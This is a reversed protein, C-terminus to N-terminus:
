VRGKLPARRVEGAVSHHGIRVRTQWRRRNEATEKAETASLKGKDVLEGLVEEAKEKTLTAAGVGLVSKKILDIM